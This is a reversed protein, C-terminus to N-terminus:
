HLPSPATPPVGKFLDNDDPSGEPKHIYYFLPLQHRNVPVVWDRPKIVFITTDDSVPLAYRCDQDTVVVEVGNSVKVGSIAREGQDRIGNGDMRKM